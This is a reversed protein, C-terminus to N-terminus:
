SKRTTLLECHFCKWVVQWASGGKSVGSCKEEDTKGLQEINFDILYLAAEQGTRSRAVVGRAFCQVDLHRSKEPQAKLIHM